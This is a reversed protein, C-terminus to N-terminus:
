IVTALKRQKLLNTPKAPSNIIYKFTNVNLIMYKYSSYNLVEKHLKTALIKYREYKKELMRSHLGFNTKYKTGAYLIKETISDPSCFM